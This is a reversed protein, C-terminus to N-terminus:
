PCAQGSLLGAVFLPVDNLDFGSAANMDACSCYEGLLACDIFVQIDRGDKKGDHNMDGLCYCVTTVPWFGGTLEFGGGSMVPSTQADPQGLTGGVEFTGGTSFTQGGGDITYWTVSPQALAASTVLLVAACIFRNM